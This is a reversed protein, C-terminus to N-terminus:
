GENNKFVNGKSSNIKVVPMRDMRKNIEDRIKNWYENVEEETLEVYDGLKIEKPERNFVERKQYFVRAQMYLPPNYETDKIGITDGFRLKKNEMGPMNELDVVNAEYTAVTNIRKNLETRAYQTLEELTMEMRESQPYYAEIIHENGNEGWRALADRDEVFVSLRTGDEREPGYAMLATVVKSSDETRRLSQLDRGHEVVRGRDEGVQELLDVYHTIETGNVDIYFDLELDFEKAVKRLYSYPDTADEFEITKSGKYDITGVKYRTGSLANNAHWEATNNIKFPDIVKSKALDHYTEFAIIEIFPVGNSDRFKDTYEIRFELWKGDEGPVILRNRNSLYEAYKPHDIIEA